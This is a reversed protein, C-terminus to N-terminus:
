NFLKKLTGEAWTTRWSDIIKGEFKYGIKEFNNIGLPNNFYLFVLKNKL